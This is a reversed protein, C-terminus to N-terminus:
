VHTGTKIKWDADGYAVLSLGALLGEALLAQRLKLVVEGFVVPQQCNETLMAVLKLIVDKVQRGRIKTFNSLVIAAGSTMLQSCVDFGASKLDTSECGLLIVFPPNTYQQSILGGTFYAQELFQEEGIEIKDMELDEDNEIHVLLILSDPEPNRLAVSWNDWTNAERFSVTSNNRIGGRIMDPIGAEFAGVKTASGYLVNQLIHLVNRQGAPQAILRFDTGDKNTEKLYSHREIVRSFAWFGFPCVHDAKAGDKEEFCDKCAGELLATKANPCITAERAPPKKSYAFDIPLYNMTNGILQVAGEFAPQGRMLSRYLVSGKLALKVFLKRNEEDTLDAPHNDVDVLADEISSKIDMIEQQLGGSINIRFSADQSMGSISGTDSQRPQAQFVAGYKTQSDNFELWTRPAAILKMRLGETDSVPKTHSVPSTIVVHQLLRNNHYARIDASFSLESTLTTFDFLASTSTGQRPLWIDEQLLFNYVDSSFVITIKELVQDSKEFVFDSRVAVGADMFGQDRAGIKIEVQYTTSPTLFSAAEKQTKTNKIRALLFRETPLVPPETRIAQEEDEQSASVNAQDIEIMAEDVSNTNKMGESVSVEEHDEPPEQMQSQGPPAAAYVDNFIEDLSIKSSNLEQVFIMSKIDRFFRGPLDMVKNKVRALFGPSDSKSTPVKVKNSIPAAEQIDLTHYYTAKSTTRNLVITIQHTTHLEVLFQTLWDLKDKEGTYVILIGSAYQSFFNLLKHVQDIADVYEDRGSILLIHLYAACQETRNLIEKLDEYVAIDLPTDNGTRFFKGPVVIGRIRPHVFVTFLHTDHNAFAMTLPQNWQHHPKGNFPIYTVSM